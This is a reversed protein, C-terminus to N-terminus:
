ENFIWTKDTVRDSGGFQLDLAAQVNEPNNNYESQPYMWRYPVQMQDNKRFKPYGTRHYEFLGFWGGGQLFSPIYKQTIIREIKNEMTIANEYAVLDGQLYLVAKDETLYDAFEKAYAQYFRFSAKVASEYLRQDDGQIWGRVVGEALILQQESFGLLIFPENTPNKYYRPHPKSVLGNAAKANVEAYPKIPDGGDYSSFDDVPKAQEEARPTQTAVAFLRPDRRQALLAIYTSDMYMGSGFDSDNFYPYRNSQQDLYILQGNDAESTMLPESSVIKAFTEAVLFNEAHSRQSLSLLVKLRYANIFKRWKRTDGNYIIDGAISVNENAALITNAQDLENLVFRLVDQQSDYRPSFVGESEGKLAETCPVDGFTMTLRYYYHAKFFSALARFVPQNTRLAEEEMKCINRLSSYDGFDGRNWKYLQSSNEGDTQVLQRMAYMPSKGSNNFARYSISTLLLQPNTTTANNPDINMEVLDVCATPALLLLFLILSNRINKKM